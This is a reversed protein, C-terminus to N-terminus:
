PRAFARDGHHDDGRYAKAKKKQEDTLTALFGTMPRSKACIPEPEPLAKPSLRVSASQYFKKAYAFMDCEKGTIDKKM